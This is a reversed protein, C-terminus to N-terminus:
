PTPPVNCSHLKAADECAMNGTQSPSWRSITRNDHRNRQTGPQERVSSSRDSYCM